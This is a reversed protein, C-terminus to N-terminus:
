NSFGHVELGLRDLDHAVPGAAPPSWKQSSHTWGVGPRPTVNDIRLTGRISAAFAATAVIINTVTGHEVVAYVHSSESTSM